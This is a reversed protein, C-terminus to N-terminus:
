MAQCRANCVCRIHPCLFIRIIWNHLRNNHCLERSVASASKTRTFGRTQESVLPRAQGGCDQHPAEHDNPPTWCCAELTKRSLSGWGFCVSVLLDPAPECKSIKCASTASPGLVMYPRDNLSSEGTWVNFFSGYPLSVNTTLTFCTSGAGAAQQVQKVTLEERM